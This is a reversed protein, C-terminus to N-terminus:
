HIRHAWPFNHDNAQPDKDAVSGAPLAPAIGEPGATRVKYDVPNVSSACVRVLVEGAAAEPDPLMAEEFLEPGGFSRIIQAKM